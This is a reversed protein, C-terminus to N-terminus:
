AIFDTPHKPVNEIRFYICSFVLSCYGWQRGWEIGIASVPWSKCVCNLIYIVTMLHYM